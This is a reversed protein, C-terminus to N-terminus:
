ACTPMSTSRIHEFGAAGGSPVAGAEAASPRAIWGVFAAAGFANTAALMFHRRNFESAEDGRESM